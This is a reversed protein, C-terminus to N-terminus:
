FPAVDRQKGAGRRHTFGFGAFIGVSRAGRHGAAEIGRERHKLEHPPDGGGIGLKGGPEDLATGRHVNPALLRPKRLPDHADGLYRCRRRCSTIVILKVM